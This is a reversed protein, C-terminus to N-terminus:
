TSPIRSVPGIRGPRRRRRHPRPRRPRRLRRRPQRRAQPRRSSAAVPEPAPATRTRRRRRRPRGGPICVLPADSIGPQMGHNEYTFNGDPGRRRTASRAVRSAVASLGRPGKGPSTLHITAARTSTAASPERCPAKQYVTDWPTSTLAVALPRFQTEADTNPYFLSQTGGPFQYGTAESARAGGPGARSRDPPRLSAAVAAAAGGMLKKAYSTSM